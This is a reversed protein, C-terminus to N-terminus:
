LQLVRAQIGPGMGGRGMHRGTCTGEDAVSQACAEPNEHKSVV